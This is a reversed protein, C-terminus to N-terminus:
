PVLVNYIFTSNQLEFSSIQRLLILCKSTLTNQQLVFYASLYKSFCTAERGACFFSLRVWVGKSCNDTFLDLCVCVCVCMCACGASLETNEWSIKLPEADVRHKSEVQEAAAREDDM